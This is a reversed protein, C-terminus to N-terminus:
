PTSPLAHLTNQRAVSVDAADIRGSANLDNRFTLTSVTQLTQQRVSSVDAADVRGSANVDGVLVGMQPGVVTGGNAAGQVGNLTVAVYQQDTVGTLNVVYEHNNLGIASSSVSGVGTTVSAGAVSTLPNNFQFVVTYNGAGSAASSRCEVGRAGTLPLNLDFTGASGHTMRSVAGILSLNQQVTIAAQALNTSQLGLSNRVTLRAPFIGASSYVHSFAPTSQTVAPSGDGFNMTYSNITGCSGYPEVSGSGDFSVTLPANGSM